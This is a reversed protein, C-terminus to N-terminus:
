DVTMNINQNSNEDTLDVEVEWGDLTATMHLEEPVPVNLIVNYVKGAEFGATPISIPQSEATWDTGAAGNTEGANLTFTIYPNKSQTGRNDIVMDGYMDTTPIMAYGVLYPENAVEDRQHNGNVDDWVKYVKNLNGVVLEANDLAENEGLDETSAATQYATKDVAQWVYDGPTITSEVVKWYSLESGTYPINVATSLADTNTGDAVGATITMEKVPIDALSGDTENVKGGTITGIHALTGENAPTQRDAVTLQWKVPVKTLELNKLKFLKKYPASAGIAEGYGYAIYNVTKCQVYFRLQALKHTLALQPLDNLDNTGTLANQKSRIYKANFGRNVDSTEPTSPDDDEDSTTTPVAKAYIVDEKGTLTYDVTIKKATEAVANGTQRPYYGYFYYNYWNGYPYYYYKVTPTPDALTSPLLFQVDSADGTLMVNGIKSGSHLIKVQAPQNREMLYFLSSADATAWDISGEAVPGPSATAIQPKQALCYIGLFEGAPTEFLNHNDSEVPSRTISTSNSSQSGFGLRIQVDSAATAEAIIAADKEAQTMEPVAAIDDGSSCATLMGGALSLIFLYKKM